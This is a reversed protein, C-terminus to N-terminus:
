VGLKAAWGVALKTLARRNRQRHLAATTGGGIVSKNRSRGRGMARRGVKEGKIQMEVECAEFTERERGRM